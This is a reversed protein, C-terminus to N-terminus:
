NVAKYIASVIEKIEADKPLYNVAGAEFMKKRILKENILSFAIVKVSPHIDTVLETAKIGNMYKMKIDMLIVDVENEALFGLVENGDYCEGVVQIQLYDSLMSKIGKLIAINDDVLLVKIM